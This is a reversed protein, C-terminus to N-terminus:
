TEDTNTPPPVKSPSLIGTFAGIARTLAGPKTDEHKERLAEIQRQFEELDGRLFGSAADMATYISRLSEDREPLEQIEEKWDVPHESSNLDSIEQWTERMNVMVQYSREMKEQLRECATLARGLREHDVNNQVDVEKLMNKLTDYADRFDFYADSFKKRTTHAQQLQDTHKEGMGLKQIWEDRLQTENRVRPDILANRHAFRANDFPHSLGELCAHIKSTIKKRLQYLEKIIPDKKSVQLDMLKQYTKGKFLALYGERLENILAVKEAETPAIQRAKQHLAKMEERLAAELRSRTHPLRHECVSKAKRATGKVQSPTLIDHALLTQLEPNRQIFQDIEGAEKYVDPAAEKGKLSKELTKIRETRERFTQLTTLVRSNFLGQHHLMEFSFFPSLWAAGAAITGELAHFLENIVQAELESVRSFCREDIWNNENVLPVTRLALYGIAKSIHVLTKLQIFLALAIRHVTAVLAVASTPFSAFRRLFFNGVTTLPHDLSHNKVGDAIVWEHFQAFGIDLQRNM